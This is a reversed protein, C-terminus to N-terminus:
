GPWANAFEVIGTQILGYVHELDDTYADVYVDWVGEPVDPHGDVLIHDLSRVMGVASLLIMWDVVRMEISLPQAPYSNQDGGLGPLLGGGYILRVPDVGDGRVPM